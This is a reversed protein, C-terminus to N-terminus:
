LVEKEGERFTKEGLACGSATLFRPLRQAERGGRRRLERKSLAGEMQGGIKLKELAKGVLM